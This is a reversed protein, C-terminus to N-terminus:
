WPLDAWGDGDIDERSQHHAGATITGSWASAGKASLFGVLDEGGRSTANALMSSEADANQSVLNLVGGLAAGGYLASAAGKIVEVRKLDLPPTQLLGFGDPEGGLSPLGDELVLTHRVPMGRLQLGAGGLGPSGAQVRIGPLENLLSTLNGPQITLNEEIEEAPLAEVRLQEDGILTPNRTATVIIQELVDEEDPDAAM